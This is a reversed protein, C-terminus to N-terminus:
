PGVRESNAVIYAVTASLILLLWFWRVMAKDWWPEPQSM